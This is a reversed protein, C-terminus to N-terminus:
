DGQWDYKIKYQIKKYDRKAKPKQGMEPRLKDKRRIPSRRPEEVQNLGFRIFDSGFNLDDKFIDAEELYHRSM